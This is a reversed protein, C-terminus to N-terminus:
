GLAISRRSYLRVKLSYLRRFLLAIGALHWRESCVTIECGCPNVGNRQLLEIGQLLDARTTTTSSVGVMVKPAVQGLADAMLRGVPVTQGKAFVGGTFVVLDYPSESQMAREIEKRAAEVTAQSDVALCDREVGLSFLWLM